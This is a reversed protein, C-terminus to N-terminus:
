CMAELTKEVFSQDKYVVCKLETSMHIYKGIPISEILRDYTSIKYGKVLSNSKSKWRNKRKRSSLEDRRGAILTCLIISPFDFGYDLFPSLVDELYDINRKTWESWDLMQQFAHNYEQTFEDKETFLRLSPKEIEILKIYSGSSNHYLYAFDVRYDAGLPLQSIVVDHDLREPGAVLFPYKEIFKQIPSEILQYDLLQNFEDIVNRIHTEEM